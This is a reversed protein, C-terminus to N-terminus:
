IEGMTGDRARVFRGDREIERMDYILVETVASVPLDDGGRTSDGLLLLRVGSVPYKYYPVTSYQVPSGHRTKM